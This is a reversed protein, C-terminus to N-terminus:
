PKKSVSPRSDGARGESISRGIRSVLTGAGSRVREGPSYGSRMALGICYYELRMSGRFIQGIGEFHACPTDNAAKETATFM